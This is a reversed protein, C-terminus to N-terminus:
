RSAEKGSTGAPVSKGDGTGNDSKTIESRPSGASASNGESEANRAESEKLQRRLSEDSSRGKSSEQPVSLEAIKRELAVITIKDGVVPYLRMAEQVDSMTIQMETM